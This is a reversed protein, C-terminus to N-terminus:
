FGVLGFERMAPVFNVNDHNDRTLKILVFRQLRTLTAWQRDGPPALGVSRAYACVTPPPIHPNDWQWCPPEGLPKAAENARRAVLQTLTTRYAAIEATTTCPTALL